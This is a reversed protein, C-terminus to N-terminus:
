RVTNKEQCKSYTIESGDPRWPNQSFWSNVKSIIGQISSESGEHQRWSERVEFTHNYHKETHIEKLTDLQVKNLKKSTYILMKWWNPVKCGNGRWINKSERERDGRRNPSRPYTDRCAQHWGELPRDPEKWKIREKRKLQKESQIMEVSRGELKNIREIVKEFRNSLAQLLNKMMAIENKM